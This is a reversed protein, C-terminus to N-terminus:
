KPARTTADAAGDFDQMQGMRVFAWDYGLEPDYRPTCPPPNAWCQDTRSPVSVEYGTRTTRKVTYTVPVAPRSLAPIPWPRTLALRLVGSSWIMAAAAAVAAGVLLARGSGRSATLVCSAVFGLPVVVLSFFYGLAFRPDPAALFWYAVGSLAIAVV